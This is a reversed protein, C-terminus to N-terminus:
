AAHMDVESFFVGSLCAPDITCLKVHHWVKEVSKWVVETLSTLAHYMVPKCVATPPLCLRTQFTDYQAIM